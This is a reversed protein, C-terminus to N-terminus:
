QAGGSVIAYAAVSRAHRLDNEDVGALAATTGAPCGFFLDILYVLRVHDPMSALTRVAHDPSPTHTEEPVHVEIGDISSLEMAGAVVAYTHVGVLCCLPTGPSWGRVAGPLTRYVERLLSIAHERDRGMPSVVSWCRNRWAGWLEDWAAPEGRRLRQILRADAISVPLEAAPAGM